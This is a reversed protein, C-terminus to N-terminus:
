VVLEVLVVEVVSVEEVILVVLEPDFEVVVVRVEVEEVLM